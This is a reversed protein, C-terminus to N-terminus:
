NPADPSKLTETRRKSYSQRSSADREEVCDVFCKHCRSQKSAVFLRDASFTKCASCKRNSVEHTIANEAAYQGTLQRRCEQKTIVLAGREHVNLRYIRSMDEHDGNAMCRIESVELGRSGPAQHHLTLSDCGRDASTAHLAFPDVEEECIALRRHLFDKMDVKVDERTKPAIPNSEM